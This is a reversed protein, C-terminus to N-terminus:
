LRASKIEVNTECSRDLCVHLLKAYVLDRGVAHYLSREYRCPLFRLIDVVLEVAVGEDFDYVITSRLRVSAM